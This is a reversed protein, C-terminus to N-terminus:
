ITKEFKAARSRCKIEKALREWRDPHRKVAAGVDVAPALGRGLGLGLGDGIEHSGPLFVEQTEEGDVGVALQQQNGISIGVEGGGVGVLQYKM